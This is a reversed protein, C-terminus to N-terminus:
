RSKVDSSQISLASHTPWKKLGGNVPDPGTPYFAPALGFDVAQDVLQEVQMTTDM